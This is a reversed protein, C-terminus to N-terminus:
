RGRGPPGADRGAPRRGRYWAVMLSRGGRRGAAAASPPIARAKAAAAQAEFPVLQAAPRVSQPPAQRSRADLTALQPAHPWTQGTPAAQTAPAQAQGASRGSAHVPGPPTPPAHTFRWVPSPPYQPAQPTDQAAAPTAAASAGQTAPAQAQAPVGAAASQPPLGTQTFVSTSAAFQPRHPVAHWSWAVHVAPTQPQVVAVQGSSQVVAHTFRAVSAAFQPAHRFTQGEAVGDQEAPVQQGAPNVLQAAPAHTSVDVSGAFQPAQPAAHALPVVHVSPLHQGVPWTLQPPVHTSREVSAAFQPAQPRAQVLRVWAHTPPAHVHVAAAGFAQPSRHQWALKQQPPPAAHGYSRGFPRPCVKAVHSAGPVQDRVLAPCAARAQLAVAASESAADHEAPQTWAWVDPSQAM